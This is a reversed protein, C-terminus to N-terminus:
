KKRLRVGVSKRDISFFSLTSFLNSKSWGFDYNTKKIRNDEMSWQSVYRDKLHTATPTCRPSERCIQSHGQHYEKARQTKKAKEFVFFDSTTM